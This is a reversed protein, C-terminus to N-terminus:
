GSTRLARSLLTVSRKVVTAKRCYRLLFIAAVKTAAPPVLGAGAQPGSAIAGSQSFRSTEVPTLFFEPNLLYACPKFLYFSLAPTPQSFQLPPLLSTTQAIREPLPFPIRLICSHHPSLHFTPQLTPNQFRAPRFSLALTGKPIQPNSNQYGAPNNLSGEGRGHSKIITQYRVVSSTSQPSSLRIRSTQTHQLIHLPRSM